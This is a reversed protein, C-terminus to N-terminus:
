TPSWTGAPIQGDAELLAFMIDDLEDIRNTTRTPGNFVDIHERGDVLAQFQSAQIKNAGDMWFENWFINVGLTTRNIEFSVLELRVINRRANVSVAKSEPTALIWPM